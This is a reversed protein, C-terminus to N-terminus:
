GTENGKGRYVTDLLEAEQQGGPHQWVVQGARMGIVQAQPQRLAELDHTSCLITKGQAVLQQLLTTLERRALPDLSQAPEDLLLLPTQQVLARAIAAKQREGGSLHALSREALHDIALQRLAQRALDYDAPRYTGLWGLYPFRGLLVFQYTTLQPYAPIDQPVWALQQALQRADLQRVPQQGLWIDGQYAIQQTLCRLLTTKGSGNPGILYHLKHPAFALTVGRLIAHGQRRVWLAQVRLAM